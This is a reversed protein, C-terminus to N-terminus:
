RLHGVSLALIGLGQQGPPHPVSSVETTTADPLVSKTRRRKKARAPLEEFVGVKPPASGTQM